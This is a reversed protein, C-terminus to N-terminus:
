CARSLKPEANMEFATQTRAQESTESRDNDEEPLGLVESLQKRYAKRLRAKKLQSEKFLWDLM